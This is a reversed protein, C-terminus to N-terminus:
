FIVIDMENTYEENGYAYVIYVYGDDTLFYTKASEIKYIDSEIDRKYVDGYESSIVELNKSVKKIEDNISKQVAETTTQKLSILEDLTLEKEGTISYNYTKVSVKESKDIEKLSSKIVISIVDSNLFAAYSVKYITNGETQRMITNVKNYFEDKIETNITKAVKSNINLLPIQANVNYYSEDSNVYNYATYVVPKQYDQKNIKSVDTGTTNEKLENTFRNEFDSKLIAYEEETKKSGINIGIMLPDTKSYKYFFQGYIGLSIAIICILLIVIYFVLRNKGELSYFFGIIRNKM